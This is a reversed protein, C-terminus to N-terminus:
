RGSDDADISRLRGAVHRLASPIGGRFDALKALDATRIGEPHTLLGALSDDARKLGTTLLGAPSSSM